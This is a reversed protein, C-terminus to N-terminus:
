RMASSNLTYGMVSLSRSHHRALRGRNQRSASLRVLLSGLSFAEFRHRRVNLRTSHLVPDRCAFALLLWCSVCGRFPQPTDRKAVGDATFTGCFGVYIAGGSGTGPSPARKFRSLTSNIKRGKLRAGHAYTRGWSRFTHPYECTRRSALPVGPFHPASRRRHLAPM